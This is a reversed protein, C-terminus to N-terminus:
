FNATAHAPGPVCHPCQGRGAPFVYDRATVRCPRGRIRPGYTGCSSRCAFRCSWGAPLAFRDAYGDAEAPDQAPVRKVLQRLEDVDQLAAHADHAGGCATTCLSICQLSMRPCVSPCLTLRPTVPRACTLPRRPLVSVISLIRNGLAIEAVQPV